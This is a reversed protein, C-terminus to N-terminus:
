PRTMPRARWHELYATRNSQFLRSGCNYHYAASPTSVRKCGTSYDQKTFVACRLKDCQSGAVSTSYEERTRPFCMWQYIKQSKIIIQSKLRKQQELQPNALWAALEGICSSWVGKQFTESFVMMGGNIHNLEWGAYYDVRPQSFAWLRSLRPLMLTDIDVVMLPLLESFILPLALKLWGVSPGAHHLCAPGGLFNRVRDADSMTVALPLVGELGWPLSRRGGDAGAAPEYSPVGDCLWIMRAAPDHQMLSGHLIVAQELVNLKDRLHVNIRQIGFLISIYVRGHRAHERVLAAARKTLVPATTNTAQIAPEWERPAAKPPAARSLLADGPHTWATTDGHM